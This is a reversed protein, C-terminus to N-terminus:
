FSIPFAATRDDERQGSDDTGSCGSDTWERLWLQYEPDHMGSEERVLDCPAKEVLSRCYDDEKERIKQGMPGHCIASTMEPQRGCAIAREEVARVYKLCPDARESGSRIKWICLISVAAMVLIFTVIRKMM